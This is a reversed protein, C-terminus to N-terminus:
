PASRRRLLTLGEGLPLDLLELAPDARLEDVYNKVRKEYVRDDGYVRSTRVRLTDHFLVLADPALRERFAEYDFRAQEVTHLGDIFLLGVGALARYADSQAFEQTTARFHRINDVGFRRFHASVREPSTWFDDVHSPDIFVVEGGELNDALARGLVLPVFGRWSGIVVACRPRLARALGYYVWGLGLNADDARQAHGMRGMEPDALLERTWSDIGPTGRYDAFSGM